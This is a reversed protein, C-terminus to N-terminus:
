RRLGLEGLRKVVQVQGNGIDLLGAVPVDLVHAAVSALRRVGDGPARPGDIM